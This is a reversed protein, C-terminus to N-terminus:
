KVARKKKFHTVVCGTGSSVGFKKIREIKRDFEFSQNKKPWNKNRALNGSCLELAANVQQTAALPSIFVETFRLGAKGGVRQNVGRLHITCLGESRDSVTSRFLFEGEEERRRERESM